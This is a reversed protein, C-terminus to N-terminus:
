KKTRPKRVPFIVKNGKTEIGLMEKLIPKIVSIIMASEESTLEPQNSDWHYKKNKCVRNLDFVVAKPREQRIQEQRIDNFFKTFFFLKEVRYSVGWFREDGRKVSSIWTMWPLRIAVIKMFDSVDMHLQEAKKIQEYHCNDATLLTIDDFLEQYLDWFRPPIDIDFLGKPCWMGVIERARRPPVGLEVQIQELSKREGGCLGYYDRSAICSKYDTNKYFATILYFLPLSDYEDIFQSVFREQEDTLRVAIHRAYFLMQEKYSLREFAELSYFQEYYEYLRIFDDMKKKTLEPSPEDSFVYMEMFAKFGSPKQCGYDWLSYFNHLSIMKRERVNHLAMHFLEIGQKTDLYAWKKRSAQLQKQFQHFELEAQYMATTKYDVGQGACFQRYSDIVTELLLEPRDEYMRKQERTLKPRMNRLWKKSESHLNITKAAM